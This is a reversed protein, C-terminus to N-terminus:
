SVRGGNAKLGLQDAFLRLLLELQVLRAHLPQAQPPRRPLLQAEGPPQDIGEAQQLGRQVFVLLLNSCWM